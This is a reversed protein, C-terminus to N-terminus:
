NKSQMKQYSLIVSSIFDGSCGVNKIKSQDLGYEIFVGLTGYFYIQSAYTGAANTNPAKFVATASKEDLAKVIQLPCAVYQGALKKGTIDMLTTDAAYSLRFNCTDQGAINQKTIQFITPFLPDQLVAKANECRLASAGLCSLVMDANYVGPKKIDPATGVGCDKIRNETNKVVPPPTEEVTPAEEEGGMGFAGKISDFSPLSFSISGISALGKNWLSIIQPNFFWWLTVLALGVVIFTLNKRFSKSKPKPTAFGVLPIVTRFAENMDDETWGGQSVLEKHIEERTKGRGFEGRIYGILEPTIM